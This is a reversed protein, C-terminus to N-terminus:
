DGLWLATPEVVRAGNVFSGNSSALDVLVPVGDCLELRAHRRSLLPDPLRLDAASGRGITQPAHISLTRGSLPGSRVVLAFRATDVPEPAARLREETRMM